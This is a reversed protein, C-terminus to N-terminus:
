LTPEDNVELRLYGLRALDRAIDGYSRGSLVGGALFEKQTVDAMCCFPPDFGDKEEASNFEFDVLVLGLLSGQFVDVEAEHGNIITKYRLKQVRRESTTRLAIYEDSTLPITNEVHVSADSTDYPLKKTIVYSDDQRRVRLQAHINPNDPIYTDEMVIPKVGIIEEPVIRPLYTLEYETVTTSHHEPVNM